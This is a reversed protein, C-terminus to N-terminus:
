QNLQNEKETEQWQTSLNKVLLIIRKHSEDAERRALISENTKRNEKETGMPNSPKKNVWFALKEEKDKKVPLLNKEVAQLGNLCKRTFNDKEGLKM